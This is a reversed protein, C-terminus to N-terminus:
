GLIVRNGRTGEIEVREGEAIKDGDYHWMTGKDYIM